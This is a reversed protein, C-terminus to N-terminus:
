MVKTTLERYLVTDHAWQRVVCRFWGYGGLTGGNKERIIEYNLSFIM